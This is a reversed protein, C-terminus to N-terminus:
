SEKQSIAMKLPALLLDTIKLGKEKVFVDAKGEKKFAIDVKMGKSGRHLLYSM